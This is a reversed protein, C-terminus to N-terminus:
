KESALNELWELAEKRRPFFRVPIPIPLHKNIEAKAANMAVDPSYFAVARVPRSHEVRTMSHRLEPDVIYSGKAGCLVFFKKGPFKTELTLDIADTVALDILIGNVLIVEAIHDTLFQLEFSDSGPM